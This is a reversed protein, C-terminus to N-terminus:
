FGAQRHDCSLLSRQANKPLKIKTKNLKTKNQKTKNQKTKNQKKKKTKKEAPAHKGYTTAIYM